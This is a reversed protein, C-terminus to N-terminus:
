GREKKMVEQITAVVAARDEKSMGPKIMETTAAPTAAAELKDLQARLEAIQETQSKM